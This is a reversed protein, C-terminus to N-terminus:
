LALGICMITRLKYLYFRFWSFNQFYYIKTLVPHTFFFQLLLLPPFLLYVRYKSKNWFYNTFTTRIAVIQPLKVPYCMKYWLRMNPSMSLFYSLFKHQIEFAEGHVFNCTKDYQNRHYFYHLLNPLVAISKM